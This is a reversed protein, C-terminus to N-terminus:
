RESNPTRTTGGSVMERLASADENEDDSNVVIDRENYQSQGFQAADDDEVDLDEDDEDEVRKSSTAFGAGRYGGEMMASARVRVEGAWEYEDWGNLQHQNATDEDEEDEEEEEEHAAPQSLCNDIHLNVAELDGYLRENCIFCTQVNAEDLMVQLALESDSSHNTNQDKKTDNMQLVRESRKIRNKQIKELTEEYVSGQKKKNSKGQELQKKAAVAAGRKGKSDYKNAYMQFVVYLYLCM